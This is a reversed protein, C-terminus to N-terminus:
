PTYLSPSQSSRWVAGIEPHSCSVTVFLLSYGWWSTLSQTERRRKRGVAWDWPILGTPCHLGHERWPFFDPLHKLCLVFCPSFQTPSQAKVQATRPQVQGKQIRFDSCLWPLQGFIRLSCSLFSLVPCHVAITLSVFVNIAM